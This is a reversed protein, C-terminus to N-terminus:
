DICLATSGVWSFCESSSSLTIVWTVHNIGCRDSLHCIPFWFICVFDKFCALIYLLLEERHLYFEKLFLYHNPM